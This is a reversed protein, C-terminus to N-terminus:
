LGQAAATEGARLSAKRCSLIRGTILELLKEEDEIVVDISLYFLNEPLKMRVLKVADKETTVMCHVDGFSACQSLDRETYVHHDPFSIAHVVEAGLDKLLDFFSQNDGLGCFALVRKGAIFNYHAFQDNQMNYLHAPKYAVRFTPTPGAHFQMRGDPEGKNVLIVDAEGVREEPERYPGLPFLNKAAAGQRGNVVLIDMDKRINKLQFGDDLIAADINFMEIGKNIAQARGAGVIVPVKSRRSLMMAEDGVDEATDKAVDVHFVGRRKRMYGRTIIGPNFGKEKLRQAIVDVVPTKGTGGLTINGVSIVPIRAEEIRLLGKRYSWDRVFLCFRYVASLILLPIYLILRLTRAEGRWVRVM